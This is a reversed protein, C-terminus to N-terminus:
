STIEVVPLLTYPDYITSMRDTIQTIETPICPIFLFDHSKITVPIPPSNVKWLNKNATLGYETDNSVTSGEKVSSWHKSLWISKM